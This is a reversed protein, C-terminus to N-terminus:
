NCQAVGTWDAAGTTINFTFRSASTIGGTLTLPTSTLSGLTSITGPSTGASITQAGGSFISSGNFLINFVFSASADSTTTTWICTSIQGTNLVNLNPLAPSAATGNNITFSVSKQLYAYAPTASSGTNNGWWKYAASNALTATVPGTSASNSLLASDGSFSTVGGTGIGCPYGSDAMYWSNGSLTPQGCHGSSFGSGLPVLIADAGNVWAHFNKNTSDYGIEGQAAATYGAAVPLKLQSTGSFDNTTSGTYTNSAALGPAGFSHYDFTVAAAGNYTSGPSAGGSVAATLNDLSVTGCASGTGSLAGSSNAQVCQTSGTIPTTITGSFTPSAEPALSSLLVSSDAIQGATGSM